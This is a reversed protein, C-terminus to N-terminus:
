RSENLEGLAKIHPAANREYWEACIKLTKEGMDLMAKQRDSFVVNYEVSGDKSILMSPIGVNHIDVMVKQIPDIMQMYGERYRRLEAHHHARLDDKFLDDM